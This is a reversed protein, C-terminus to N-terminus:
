LTEGKSAEVGQQREGEKSHQRELTIIEVEAPTQEGRCLRAIFGGQPFHDMRFRMGEVPENCIPCQEMKVALVPGDCGGCKAVALTPKWEHGNSCVNASCLRVLPQAPFSVVGVGEPPKVEVLSSDITNIAIKGRNCTYL